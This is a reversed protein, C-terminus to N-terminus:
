TSMPAIIILSPPMDGLNQGVHNPGCVEVANMLEDKRFIPIEVHMFVMTFGSVSWNRAQQFGTGRVGGFTNPRSKYGLNETPQDALKQKGHRSIDVRPWLHHRIDSCEVM